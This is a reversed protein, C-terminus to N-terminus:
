RERLLEKVWGRFSVIALIIGVSTIAWSSVAGWVMLVAAFAVLAPWHTPVPLRDPQPKTWGPPMPVDPVM